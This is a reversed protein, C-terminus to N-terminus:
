KESKNWQRLARWAWAHQLYKPLQGIGWFWRMKCLVLFSEAKGGWWQKWTVTESGGSWFKWGWDHWHGQMRKSLRMLLSKHGLPEAKSVTSLVRGVAKTERRGHPGNDAGTWCGPDGMGGGKRDEWLKKRFWVKEERSFSHVHVLIEWRSSGRRPEGM